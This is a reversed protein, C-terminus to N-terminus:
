KVYGLVRVVSWEFPTKPSHKYAAVYSKIGKSEKALNRTFRIRYLLTNWALNDTVNKFDPNHGFLRHFVPIAVAVRTREIALNRTVPIQGNAMREIDQWVFDSRHVTEMYDRAIARREGQGLKITSLSIGYVIFNRISQVQNTTLSINLERADTKVQKLVLDEKTIDRPLGLTAILKSLDSPDLTTVSPSTAATNSGTSSASQSSPPMLGPPEAVTSTSLSVRLSLLSSAEGSTSYYRGYITVPDTSTPVEIAALSQYTTLSANALSPNTSLVYGRVSSPDANLHIWVRRSSNSLQEVHDLTLALPSTSSASRPPNSTSGGGGGGSSSGGSSITYANSSVSSGNGLVDCAISKVTHTSSISIVGAYITGNNCTPTSGDTTYRMTATGDNTTLGVSQTSSYTGAAPSASPSSPATTDIVYGSQTAQIAPNSAVDTADVLLAGSTTINVTCDVTTSNTQNCVLGTPTASGNVTIASIAIATDDTAHITTNAITSSSTLTPAAITIVPPTVDSSIDTTRMTYDASTAVNGAADQSLVRFHYLTNSILGTIVISHSPTVFVNSSSTSGYGTTTGYQVTSTSSEDTTWTITASTAATSSAVTTISPVTTDVTVSANLSASVNGAGDKVWAYLTKSGQSAFTYTTPASGTWGAAGSTPAASSETLMYGTVATDDTATFTTIPIALSKSISPSVFATVVPVTNDTTRMTYDSSTAVNGAVDQSLVRFHYPTNSTLGTITISHSPSV